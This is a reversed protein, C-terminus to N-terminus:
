KASRLVLRTADSRDVLIEKGSELLQVFAEVNEPRFSGGIPLTALAPDALVIQIPNRRNFQAAVEALPTAAFVLSTGQWILATRVAEPAIREVRPSTVPGTTAVFARENAILLTPVLTPPTEARTLSPPSALTMTETPSVAVKGETVLVEVEGAGLRVNFATGVAHVAVGQAEVQFPRAPNKAVTFHAEGHILRVRRNDASYAVEAATDGNLELVSNDALIVREYGGATTAYRLAPTSTTRFAWFGLTLMLAVAAAFAFARVPFIVGRGPRAPAALLDRDPHRQAAPRFDRLPQLAAWANELRAVAAAHRPDAACWREFAAADAASFTDDRQALWAAATAAISEDDSPRPPRSGPAPNM